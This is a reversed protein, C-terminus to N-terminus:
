NLQLSQPESVLGIGMHTGMGLVSLIKAQDYVVILKNDKLYLTIIDYRNDIYTAYIKINEKFKDVTITEANIDGDTSLLFQETTVTNSINNLIKEFTNSLNINYIKLLEQNTIIKNNNLDVNLSYYNYQTGLEYLKSEKTYVSLINKDVEYIIENSLKATELATPYIFESHKSNFETITRLPLTKFEAKKVIDNKDFEYDTVSIYDNVNYKKSNQEEYNNERQNQEEKYPNEQQDQDEEYNNKQEEINTNVDNKSLFKDYTIYGALGIVLIILIIIVLFNGKNRQNNIEGM